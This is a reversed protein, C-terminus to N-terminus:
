PARPTLAQGLMRELTRKAEPTPRSSGPGRLWLCDQARGSQTEIHMEIPFLGLAALSSLLAGLLGLSDPAEFELMLSGGDDPSEVLAYGELELTYGGTFIQARQSALAIYSIGRPDSAGELALLSLEAIWSGDHGRRAHVQDISIRREALGSGLTAMWAPRFPGGLRVRYQSASLASVESWAAGDRVFVTSAPPLAPRTSSASASGSEGVSPAM